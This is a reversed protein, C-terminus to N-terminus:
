RAPAAFHQWDKSSTWYGGWQWGFRAFAKVPRDEVRIVGLPAPASSGRDLTAFRRGAPPVISGPRVYPNQLPNIDIAEGYAHDSWSTQGAVRRCNFGSTNNAAMSRDDDGGYDDVLRMRAIPWGVDYLTGFANRVERTWRRHVVMEGTRARGDFDRYSMTLYRLASLPVPCGPGHSTRMRAALDADIGRVTSEYAPDATQADGPGEGLGACRRGARWQKVAAARASGVVPLPPGAPGIRAPTWADKVVGDADVTLTLVGTDPQRDHYWVFNGLGYSVYSDGSWGSGGVRHAHSGVIVDAGAESLSRALLRQRQSPCAQGELGWHLYVVVVDDAAAASEVAALLAPPASERASALGANDRGAAWVDSRGERFVADAALFAIALGDVTVRHPAFAAARDRGAGVMAVDSRRGAALTDALGVQGYDGAHNNAVSVVDVGADALVDLAAPGTRFHFRNGPDELEKPDQAGRRTIPTELNLMSVDARRLTRAIPGLAGRPRALLASVQGEFHVDGAFAISARGSAEGAEGAEDAEDAKTTTVTATPAPPVLVADAPPSSSCGSLVLALAITLVSVSGRVRVNM